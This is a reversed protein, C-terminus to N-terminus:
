KIFWEMLVEEASGETNQLDSRHVIALGNAECTEEFHKPTGGSYHYLTAAMVELDCTVVINRKYPHTNNIANLLQEATEAQVTVGIGHYNPMVPKIFVTRSSQPKGTRAASLAAATDKNPKADFAQEAAKFKAEWEAYEQEYNPNPVQKTQSPTMM